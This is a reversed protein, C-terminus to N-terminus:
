DLCAHSWVYRRSIDLYYRPFFLHRSKGRHPWDNHKNYRNDAANVGTNETRVFRRRYALPTQKEYRQMVKGLHTQNSFGSMRAVASIPRNTTTLYFKALALHTRRLEEGPGHGLHETFLRDLSRKPVGTHEVVQKVAISKAANRRIFRLAKDL